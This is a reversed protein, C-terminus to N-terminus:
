ALAPGAGWGEKPIISAAWSFAFVPVPPSGSCKLRRHRFMQLHQRTGSEDRSPAVRLYNPARAKECHVSIVQTREKPAVRRFRDLAPRVRM